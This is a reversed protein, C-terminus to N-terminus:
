RESWNVQIMVLASGSAFGSAWELGVWALAVSAVLAAIPIAWKLFHM